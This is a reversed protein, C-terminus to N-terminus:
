LLIACNGEQDQTVIADFATAKELLDLMTELMGLPLQFTGATDGKGEDGAKRKKEANVAFSQASAGGFKTNNLLWVEDEADIVYETNDRLEQQTPRQYRVFSTPCHYTAPNDIKYSEVNRIKPVPIDDKPKPKLM